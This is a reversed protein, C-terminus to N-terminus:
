GTAMTDPVGDEGHDLVVLVASGWSSWHPRTAAGSRDTCQRDRHQRQQTCRALADAIVAPQLRVGHLPPRMRQKPLPQHQIVMKGIPGIVPNTRQHLRESLHEQFLPHISPDETYNSTLFLSFYPSAHPDGGWRSNLYRYRTVQAKHSERLLMRARPGPDPALANVGRHHTLSVVSVAASITPNSIPLHQAALPESPQPAALGHPAKCIEMLEDLDPATLDGSTFLRRLADRQWAPRQESWKLIDAFINTLM